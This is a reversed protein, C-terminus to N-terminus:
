VTHGRMREYLVIVLAQRGVKLEIITIGQSLHEVASIGGAKSGLHGSEHRVMGGLAGIGDGGEEERCEAAPSIPASPEQPVSLSHPPGKPGKPVIRCLPPGTPISPSTPVISPCM